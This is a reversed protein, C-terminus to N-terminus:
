AILEDDTLARLRSVKAAARQRAAEAEQATKQDSARQADEVM